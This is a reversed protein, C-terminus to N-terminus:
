ADLVYSADAAQKALGALLVWLEEISKRGATLRQRAVDRQGVAGNVAKEFELAEMRVPPEM